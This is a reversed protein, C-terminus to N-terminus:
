LGFSAEVQGVAQRLFVAARQVDIFGDENVDYKPWLNHMSEQVMQRKRDGDFGFHTNIVEDCVKETANKTM